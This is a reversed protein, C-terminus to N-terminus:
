GQSHQTIDTSITFSVKNSPLFSLSFHIPIGNDDYAIKEVEFLPVDETCHLFKAQETTANVFSITKTNRVAQVQYIEKLVQYTSHSEGIHKELDPFRKLSYYSTESHIPEDKILHLRKLEFLPEEREVQLAEAQRWSAPVVKKSLIRIHPEKGSQLLFDTFGNVAILERKLKNNTVFTGKGHLKRLIGQEVLETIARRTTIRSVGYKQCLENEAPLQAGISYIGEHIDKKIEDMLQEYLPKVSTKNLKM